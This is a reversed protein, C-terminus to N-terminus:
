TRVCACGSPHNEIRDYWVQEAINAAGHAGMNVLTESESHNGEFNSYNSQYEGSVDIYDSLTDHQIFYFPEFFMRYRVPDNDSEPPIIEFKYVADDEPDIDHRDSPMSYRWTTVTTGEFDRTEGWGTVPDWNTLPYTKWFNSTGGGQCSFSYDKDDSKPKLCSHGDPTPGTRELKTTGYTLMSFSDNGHERNYVKGDDNKSESSWAYTSDIIVEWDVKVEDPIPPISAVAPSPFNLGLMLVVLVLSLFLRGTIHLVLSTSHEQSPTGAVAPSTRMTRIMKTNKGFVVDLQINSNDWFIHVKSM